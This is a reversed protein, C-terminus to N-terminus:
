EDMNWCSKYSLLIGQKNSTSSMMSIASCTAYNSFFYCIHFFFTSNFLKFNLKDFILTRTLLFVSLVSSEGPFHGQKIHIFPMLLFEIHYVWYLTSCNFWLLTLLSLPSQTHCIELLQLFDSYVPFLNAWIDLFIQLSPLKQLKPFRILLLPSHNSIIDALNLLFQFVTWPTILESIRFM